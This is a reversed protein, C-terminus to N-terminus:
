GYEVSEEPDPLSGLKLLSTAIVSKKVALRPEAVEEDDQELDLQDFDVVPMNTAGRLKLMTGTFRISFGTDGGYIYAIRVSANADFSNFAASNKTLTMDNIVDKSGKCWVGKVKATEYMHLNWYSATQQAKTAASGNKRKESAKAFPNFLFKLFHNGNKDVKFLDFDKTFLGDSTLFKYKNGEVVKLDSKKVDLFSGDSYIVKANFVGGIPSPVRQIMKVFLSPKELGYIYALICSEIRRIFTQILNFQQSDKECIIDCEPSTPGVDKEGIKHLYPMRIGYVRMAELSVFVNITNGKTDFFQLEYYETDDKKVFKMNVNKLDDISKIYFSM